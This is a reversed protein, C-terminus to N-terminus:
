RRTVFGGGHPVYLLIELGNGLIRLGVKATDGGLLKRVNLPRVGFGEAGMVLFALRKGRGIVFRTIQVAVLPHLDPRRQELAPELIPESVPFAKGM